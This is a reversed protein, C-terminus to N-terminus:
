EAAPVRGYTLAHVRTLDLHGIVVFGHRGLVGDYRSRPLLQDDIQAEFFQIGCMVQGPVTRLGAATDPFPFDSIM